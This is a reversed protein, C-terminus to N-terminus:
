KKDHRDHGVDRQGLGTWTSTFTGTFTSTFALAKATTLARALGHMALSWSRFLVVSSMVFIVFHKL